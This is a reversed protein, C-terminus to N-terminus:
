RLWRATRKQLVVNATVAVVMIVIMWAALSYGLGEEGTIVNGQLVFRIQMPVLNASGTSLAYATAYASFANAFLLLVGGAMAPFLLPLGVHLWYRLPTAGLNAASERWTDRLGDVAPIMVLVMLPIQFYLYVLVLGWFEALRFGMEVLDIGFASLVKTVLGQTGFAAIFAFALPVGGLNAAVGSWSTIADRLWRPRRLTCAAYALPVGIVAGIVASYVSLKLSAAFSGRYPPSMARRMGDLSLAGDVWLADRVVTLAPWGLFVMVFAFFPLL